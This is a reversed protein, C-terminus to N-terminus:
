RPMVTIVKGTENVNVTVDATQHVFTGASHGPIPPSNLIADEIISPPINRPDTYKRCFEYHELTGVHLGKESAIHEARRSLEARVMPTDPAMRELAHQSYERGNIIGGGQPMSWGVDSGGNNSGKVVASELNRNVVTTTTRCQLPETYARSTIGEVTALYRRGAFPVVAGAGHLVTQTGMGVLEATTAKGSKSAKVFDGASQVANYTSVGSLVAMTGTATAPNSILIELSALNFINQALDGMVKGATIEKGKSADSFQQMATIGVAAAGIFVVGGVGLTMGTLVLAGGIVAGKLAAEGVSKWDVSKIADIAKKGASKLGEM